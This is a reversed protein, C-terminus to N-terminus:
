DLSPSDMDSFYPLFYEFRFKLRYLVFILVHSVWPRLAADESRKIKRRAVWGSRKLVKNLELMSLASRNRTQKVDAERCLEPLFSALGDFISKSGACDVNEVIDPPDTSHKTILKAFAAGVNLNYASGKARVM